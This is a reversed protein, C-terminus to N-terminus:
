AGRTAPEWPGCQLPCVSRAPLQWGERLRVGLLLVPEEVHIGGKHDCVAGQAVQGAGDLIGERTLLFRRGDEEWTHLACGWPARASCPSPVLSFPVKALPMSGQTGAESQM